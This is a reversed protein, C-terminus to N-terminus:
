GLVSTRHEVSRRDALTLQHAQKPHAATITSKAPQPQIFAVAPLAILIAFAIEGLLPRDAM